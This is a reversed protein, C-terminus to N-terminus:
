VGSALRDLYDVFSPPEYYTLTVEAVKLVERDHLPTPAKPELRTGNLWTGQSSDADVVSLVRGPGTVIYCHFRSVSNDEIVLDNNPTRGLTVASPMANTANKVVEYVVPSTATPRTAAGHSRTGLLLPDEKAVPQAEWVMVAHRQEKRFAERDILLRRGYVAIELPGAM